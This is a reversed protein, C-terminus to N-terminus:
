SSTTAPAATGGAAAAAPAAPPPSTVVVQVVAGGGGLSTSASTLKGTGLAPGQRVVRRVVPGSGDAAALVASPPLHHEGGGHSHGHGGGHSHGHGGGGAGHDHGCGGGAGHAHGHGMAEDGDGGGCGGDDDGEGMEEDDEDDEYPFFDFPDDYAEWAEPGGALEADTLLAADLAAFLAAKDMGHGIFVVEQKRDGYTPDWDAAILAHAGPPWEDRPVTAWWERGASFQFVRGAHAWLGAQDMGGDCGLWFFGKSRLVADLAGSKYLTDHLRTPHFPRRARYVYSRIGFEASEPVHQGRLEKLWGPAAAARALSFRRTDHLAALPVGGYTAEVVAADPNLAALIARLQALQPPTVLDTKNVVLLDAFEVQEILLDVVSRSDGDFAAMRRAGLSDASTYDGLFNLADVVTVCTDLRAVADLREGTAPHDFTFTEATQLPEGIGTSEVVILDFRGSKAMRLLAELLDERLTCCICGNSLEVMSDGELKVLSADGSSLLAADVNVSAMDNVIMGVRLGARNTLLHGLLTTKGSGLFGSLITVPVRVDPAAAAASAPATTAM